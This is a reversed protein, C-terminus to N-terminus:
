KNISRALLYIILYVYLANYQDITPSSQLHLCQKTHSDTLFRSLLELINVFHQENQSTIATKWHLTVFVTLYNTINSEKLVSLNRM